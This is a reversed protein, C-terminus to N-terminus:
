ISGSFSRDSAQMITMGQPGDAEISIPQAQPESDFHQLPRNLSRLVIRFAM